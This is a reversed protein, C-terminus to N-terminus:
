GPAIHRHQLNKIAFAWSFEQFKQRLKSWPSFLLFFAFGAAALLSHNAVAEAGPQSVWFNNVIPFRSLNVILFRGLWLMSLESWMLLFGTCLGIKFRLFLKVNIESTNTHYFYISTRMDRCWDKCQSWVDLELAKDRHASSCVAQLWPGYFLCKEGWCWLPKKQRTRKEKIFRWILLLGM